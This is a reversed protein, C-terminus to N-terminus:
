KISFLAIRNQPGVWWKITRDGHVFALYPKGRLRALLARSGRVTAQVASVVEKLERIRKCSIEMNRRLVPSLHDLANDVSAFPISCIRERRGQYVDLQWQRAEVENGSLLESVVRLAYDRARDHDPLTTGERDSVGNSGDRRDVALSLGRADLPADM